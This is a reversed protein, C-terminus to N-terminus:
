YNDYPCKGNKVILCEIDDPESEYYLNVYRSNIPNPNYKIGNGIVQRTGGQYHCGYLKNHMSFTHIHSGYPIRVTVSDDKSKLSYREWKEPNEVKIETNEASPKKESENRPIISILIWIIVLIGIWLVAKFWPSRRMRVAVQATPHSAAPQAAHTTTTM